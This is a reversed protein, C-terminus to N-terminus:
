RILALLCNVVWGNSVLAMSVVAVLAFTIGSFAASVPHERALAATGIGHSSAGTAVGLVFASTFGFRQFLRPIFLAGLLGTGVVILATLGPNAHLQDAMSLAVATTVSRALLARAYEEDLGLAGAAFATLFLSLSAGVLVSVLLPVAQARLLRRQTDLTLAFSVVAPRLFFSLVHGPTLATDGLAADGQTWYEGLDLGLWTWCAAVFAAAVPVPHALTGLAFRGHALLFGRALEAAVFGLVCLAVGLAVRAPTAHTSSWAWVSLLAVGAWLMLLTTAKWPAPPPHVAPHVVSPRSTRLAVWGSVWFTSVFGGVIVVSLLAVERGDPARTLPLLVLPPVFFVAMWRALFHTTPATWASFRDLAADNCLRGVALALFLVLLAAVFSPFRIGFSQLAQKTLWDIGSLLAIGLTINLCNRAQARIGHHPPRRNSPSPPM